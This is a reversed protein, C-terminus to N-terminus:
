LSVVFGKCSKSAHAKVPLDLRQAADDILGPVGAPAVHMCALHLMRIIVHM